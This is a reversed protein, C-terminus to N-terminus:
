LTNVPTEFPVVANIQTPGAYELPLPQSGLFVQTGGLTTQLPLNKATVPAAALNSGFISIYGGTAIPQNAALSAANVVGGPVVVPLNSDASLLGMLGASGYLQSAFSTAIVGIAVPGGDVNHAMWSGTWQGGGLPALSIPTDQSGPFYAMVSGSTVPNGCDDTVQVQVPIPIGAAFSFGSVLNTFVPLLRTPTCSAPPVTLVVGIPLDQNVVEFHPVLAGVYFDTALGSPDPTITEDWSAFGCSVQVGGLHCTFSVNIGYGVNDTFWSSGNEFTIMNQYNIVTSALDYTLAMQPPPSGNAPAAFVLTAPSVLPVIPMTAPLVQLAVEVSQLPNVAGSSTFDVRGFYIGPGLGATNVEINEVQGAEGAVASGSKPWVYLWNGGTLTSAAASFNLSGTGSNSVTVFQQMLTEAYRTVSSQFQVGNQSLTMMPGPSTVLATVPVNLTSPAGSDPSIQIAINGAYVGPTLGQANVTVPFATVSSPSIRGNGSMAPVALWCSSPANACSASAAFSAGASQYPIAVNLSIVSGASSPGDFVVVAGGTSGSGNFTFWSPGAPVSSSPSEFILANSAGGAAGGFGLATSASGDAGYVVVTSCRSDLPLGEVCYAPTGGAGGTIPYGSGGPASVPYGASSASVFSSSLTMSGSGTLTFEVNQSTADFAPTLSYSFSGGSPSYPAIGILVNGSYGNATTTAVANTYFIFGNLVTFYFAIKLPNGSGIITIQTPGYPEFTGVGTLTFAGSSDGSGTGHFSLTIPVPPPETTTTQAAATAVAFACGMARAIGRM